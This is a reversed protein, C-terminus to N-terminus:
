TKHAEHVYIICSHKAGSARRYNIELSLENDIIRNNKHLVLPFIINIYVYM